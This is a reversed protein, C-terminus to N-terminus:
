FRRFNSTVQGKVDFTVVTPAVNDVASVHLSVDSKEKYTFTIPVESKLRLSSKTGNGEGSALELAQTEVYKSSKRAGNKLRASISGGGQLADQTKGSMKFVLGSRINNREEFFSTQNVSGPGASINFSVTGLSTLPPVRVDWTCTLNRLLKDTATITVSTTSNRWLISGQPPNQTVSLPEFKNYVRFDVAPLEVFPYGYINSPIPCVLDSCFDLEEDTSLQCTTAQIWELLNPLRKFTSGYNPNGCASTPALNTLRLKERRCM